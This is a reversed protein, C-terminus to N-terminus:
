EKRYFGLDEPSGNTKFVMNDLSLIKQSATAEYVPSITTESAPYLGPRPNSSIIVTGDTSTRKRGGNIVLSEITEQRNNEVLSKSASHVTEPIQPISMGHEKLTTKISYVWVSEENPNYQVTQATYLTSDKETSRNEDSASLGWPDIWNVPDNNVYAFWNSGDRIPDITTFRAIVPQYDRYGYNYLGTRTDYPKGTYGLSMGGDLNGKYPTGFADYEYRDELNGQENTTTRVSGLIDKGL